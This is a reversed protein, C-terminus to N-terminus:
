CPTSHIRDFHTIVTSLFSLRVITDVAWQEQKPTCADGCYCVNLIGNSSEFISSSASSICISPSLCLCFTNRFVSCICTRSSPHGNCSVDRRSLHISLSQSYFSTQVNTPKIQRTDKMFASEANTMLDSCCPLNPKTSLVRYFLTEGVSASGIWGSVISPPHGLASSPLSASPSVFAGLSLHAARILPIWVFSPPSSALVAWAPLRDIAPRTYINQLSSNLAHPHVTQMSCARTPIEM